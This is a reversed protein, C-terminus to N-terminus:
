QSTLTWDLTQSGSTVDATLTSKRNYREPVKEPKEIKKGERTTRWDYTTIRVTNQGIVAGPCDPLYQLAYYGKSNTIGYATSGKRPTFEVTAGPVPEGDLLVTGSVKGLSTRTSTSCMWFVAKGAVLLCVGIGLVAIMLKLQPRGELKKTTRKYLEEGIAQVIAGLEAFDAAM